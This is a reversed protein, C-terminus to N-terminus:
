VWLLWALFAIILLTQAIIHYHQRKIEVVINTVLAVTFIILFIWYITSTVAFINTIPSLLQKAQFYKQLPSKGVVKVDFWDISEVQPEGSAGYLAINPIIVPDFFREPPEHAVITGTYKGDSAKHLEIPYNQVTVVAKTVPGTIVARVELRTYGNEDFWYVHSAARNFSIASPVPTAEGNAVAAIKEGLVQRSAEPNNATQASGVAALPPTLGAFLPNGFHQAVFVTPQGHYYGAVVGIGLETFDTDVLNSYHTPSKEWANVVSAADSFGMALNEGAYRFRYNSQKLFFRLTHGQPGAHSFYDLKAMDNARASASATLIQAETLRPIGKQFRVDNTLAIISKAQEALVDPVLFVEAPLMLAFVFVLAKMAMFLGGYLIARKTHLAHPKYNNGRHPIFFKKFSM